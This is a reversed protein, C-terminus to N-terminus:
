KGKLKDAALDWEFVKGTQQDVFYWAWTATHGIGTKKDDIINEYIHTLYYYRGEREEIREVTIYSKDPLPRGIKKMVGTVAEKETIGKLDAKAGSKELLAIVIKHNNKKALTLATEKNGNMFNVKAGRDILYKAIDHSGRLAANMLASRGDSVFNDIVAGKEVLLKVIEFSCKDAALELPTHGKEDQSDVYAGAMLLEKVKKADAKSAAAVLEKDLREDASAATNFIMLISFLSVCAILSFSRFRFNYFMTSGGNFTISRPKMM